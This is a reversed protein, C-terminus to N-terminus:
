NNVIKLQTALEQSWALRQADNMLRGISVERGHSRLTLQCTQGHSDLRRVLQVWARNCEFCYVVGLDCADFRVLQGIITLREYDGDRRALLRFAVALGVIELGAFPMVLWAGILAFGAAVIVINSFILALFVLRGAPSLSRSFQTTCSYEGATGATSSDM